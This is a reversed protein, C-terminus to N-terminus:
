LSRPPIPTFIAADAAEHDYDNNYRLLMIKLVLDITVGPGIVCVTTATWNLVVGPLVVRNCWSIQAKAM